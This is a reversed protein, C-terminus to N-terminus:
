VRNQRELNFKVLRHITSNRSSLMYISAAQNLILEESWGESERAQKLTTLPILEQGTLLLHYEFLMMATVYTAMNRTLVQTNVENGMRPSHNNQAEEQPTMTTDCFLLPVIERPNTPMSSRSLYHLSPTGVTYTDYYSGMQPCRHGREGAPRGKDFIEFLSNLDRFSRREPIRFPFSASTAFFGVSNESPNLSLALSTFLDARSQRGSQAEVESAPLLSGDRWQPLSKNIFFGNEVFFQMVHHSYLNALDSNRDTSYVTEFRGKLLDMIETPIVNRAFMFRGMWYLRSIMPWIPSDIRFSVAPNELAGWNLTFNLTRAAKKVDLLKIIFQLCPRSRVGYSDERLEKMGLFCGPTTEWNVRTQLDKKTSGTLGYGSMLAAIAIRGAGSYQDHDGNIGCFMHLYYEQANM